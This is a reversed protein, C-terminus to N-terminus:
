VCAPYNTYIGRRNINQIPSYWFLCRESRNKNSFQKGLSSGKNFLDGENQLASLFNFCKPVQPKNCVQSRWRKQGSLIYQESIARTRTAGSSNCREEYNRTARFKDVTM